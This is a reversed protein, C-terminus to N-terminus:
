HTIVLSLYHSVGVTALTAATDPDVALVVLGGSVLSTEQARPLAAVTARDAVRRAPGRGQPDAALVDVRDGVELLDVAGHDAIRVPAAVRGPYGALLDNSVLRVDTLPEGARLPAATTRGAVEAAATVVGDPVSDPSFDAHTLDGRGLVTGGPLDRAAVVVQRTAPPPASTAQLGALVAVAAAVAALSRRRVLVARRARVAARHLPRFLDSM